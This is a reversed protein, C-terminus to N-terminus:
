NEQGNKYEKILDMLKPAYKSSSDRFIEMKGDESAMIIIIKEIKEGTIEEWAISYFTCQLFHNEISEKDRMRTATKFDVVAPTGDFDCIADATGAVELEASYIPQELARINDFKQLAPEMMKFLAVAAVGYESVGGVPKNSLTLEAMKHVRTGRNAAVRMVYNAVDEGVRERWEMVTNPVNSSLLSTISIFLGDPTKYHRKGGISTRTLNPLEPYELHRFEKPKKM